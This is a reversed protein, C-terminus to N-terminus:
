RYSAWDQQAANSSMDLVLQGGTPAAPIKFTKLAGGGTWTLPVSNFTAGRVEKSCYLTVTAANSCTIWAEGIGGATRSVMTLPVNSSLLINGEGVSSDDRLLTLNRGGFEKNEYNRMAMTGTVTLGEAGGVNSMSGSKPWVVKIRANSNSGYYLVMGDDAVSSDWARANYSDDRFSMVQLSSAATAGLVQRTLQCGRTYIAGSSNNRRGDGEDLTEPIYKTALKWTGIGTTWNTRSLNYIAMSETPAAAQNPYLRIRNSQSTQSFVQTTPYQDLDYPESAETQPDTKCAHLMLKFTSPVSAQMVDRLVIVDGFGVFERNYFTLNSGDEYAPAPNQLVNFYNPSGLSQLTRGWYVSECADSYQTGDARGRPLKGNVALINEDETGIEELYLPASIYPFGNRHIVFTGSDPHEHGGWYEGCKGAFYMAQDSWDSRYVFIGKRDFLRWNPLTVPDVKQRSYDQWVAQPPEVRAYDINESVWEAVPNTLGPLALDGQLSYYPPPETNGFPMLGGFNGVRGPMMGYLVYYPMNKFWSTQYLSTDGTEMRRSESWVFLAWLLLGHYSEGANYAGDGSLTVLLNSWYADLRTKWPAHREGPIEPGVARDIAAISACQGISRSNNIGNYTSWRPYDLTAYNCEIMADAYRAFMEAFARRDSVSLDSYFWDYVTALQHLVEGREVDDGEFPEVENGLPDWQKWAMMTRFDTWMRARYQAQTPDMLLAGALSMLNRGYKRPSSTLSAPVASANLASNALSTLRSQIHDQYRSDTLWLARMTNLQSQNFLVRPHDPNMADIKRTRTVGGSSATMTWAGFKGSLTGLNFAACGGSNSSPTYTQSTGGPFDVKLSADSGLSTGAVVVTIAEGKIFHQGEIPQMVSFKQQQEIGVPYGRKMTAFLHKLNDTTDVGYYLAVSGQDSSAGFFDQVSHTSTLRRKPGPKFSFLGFGKGSSNGLILYHQSYSDGTPSGDYGLDTIMRTATFTDTNWYFQRSHFITNDWDLLNGSNPTTTIAFEFIPQGQFIRHTVETKHAVQDAITYHACFAATPGNRDTKIADYYREAGPVNFFLSETFSAGMFAYSMRIGNFPSFSDSPNKFRFFDNGQEYFAAHQSDGVNNVKRAGRMFDAKDGTLNHYFKSGETTLKYTGFTSGSRSYNFAYSAPQSLKNYYMLFRRSANAATAGSAVWFARPERGTYPQAYAAASIAVPSSGTIEEVKLTALDVNGLPKLDVWIPVNTRASTDAPLTIERRCSLSGYTWANAGSATAARSQTATLICTTLIVVLLHTIRRCSM